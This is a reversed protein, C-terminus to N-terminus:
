TITVGESDQGIKRNIAMFIRYNRASDSRQKKQAVILCGRSGTYPQFTNKHCNIVAQVECERFLFHRVALAPEMNDLIGKPLVIALRGGPSLWSICREVFLYEPPIGGAILEHTPEYRNVQWEWRHAVQFNELIMRDTIRGNVLGFWPPNTMVVSAGGANCLRLLEEPLQAIPLLSDGQFFGRHGNGSVIMAAKALKVLRPRKDILFIRNKLQAIAREQAAKGIVNERVQRRAARLAASCFGGTGGAPDVVVDDSGVNVMQTLLNVILRNTFFEGGEKKMEDATYQEYAAGM